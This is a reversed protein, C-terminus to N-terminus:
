FIKKVLYKKEDRREDRSEYTDHKALFFFM